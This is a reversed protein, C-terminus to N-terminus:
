QPPAGAGVLTLAKPSAAITGTSSWPHLRPPWRSLAARPTGAVKFVLEVGLPNDSARGEGPQRFVPEAM